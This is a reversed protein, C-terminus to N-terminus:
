CAVVRHVGDTLRDFYNCVNKVAIYVFTNSHTHIHLTKKNEKINNPTYEELIHCRPVASKEDHRYKGRVWYFLFKSQGGGVFLNTGLEYM